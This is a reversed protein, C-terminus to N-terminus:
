AAFKADFATKTTLYDTELVTSPLYREEYGDASALAFQAVGDNENTNHVETELELGSDLGYILFAEANNLGKWKREVIVVYKGGKAMENLQQKVAASVNFAVGNFTHKRKDSSFEKKVLESAGNNVQKVGQLLYGTKGTKLQFNTVIDPNTADRTTATYDIDLVNFLLVNPEIGGVPANACDYLLDDTIFGECAM